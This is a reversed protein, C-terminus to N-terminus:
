ATVDTLKVLNRQKGMVAPLHQAEENSASLPRTIM